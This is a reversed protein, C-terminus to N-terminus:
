WRKVTRSVTHGVALYVLAAIGYNLLVQWWDPDVTFMDRSWGALWSAIDHVFAVFDNSRNADLVYLFIWLGIVIAALDAIGAIVAAASPRSRNPM